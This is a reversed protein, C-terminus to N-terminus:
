KLVVNSFRGVIRREPIEEENGKLVSALLDDTVIKLLLLHISSM